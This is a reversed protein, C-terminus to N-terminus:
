GVTTTPVWVCFCEAFEKAGFNLEHNACWGFIGLVAIDNEGIEVLDVVDNQLCIVSENTAIGKICKFKM